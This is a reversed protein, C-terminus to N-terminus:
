ALGSFCIDCQTWKHVNITICHGDINKHSSGCSSLIGYYSFLVFHFFPLWLSLCLWVYYFLLKLFLSNIKLFRIHFISLLWLWIFLVTTLTFNSAFLANYNYSTYCLHSLHSSNKKVQKKYKSAVCCVKGEKDIKKKELFTRELDVSWKPGLFSCGWLEPHM